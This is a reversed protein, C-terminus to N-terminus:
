PRGRVSNLWRLLPKWQQRDFDTSSPALEFLSLGQEAARIYNQSARLVTAFPFKKGDPLKQRSLYDFLDHGAITNERVRNAVTVLKVEAKVVKNLGKLDEIFRTAARIDLPSPLIPMVITETRRLLDTLPKGHIGAPADMILVDTNKSARFKENCAAVGQIEPQKESRVSLWDMSSLQPDFDALLVSKGQTAYFGALNTAITTKGCGGKPNMVLISRM